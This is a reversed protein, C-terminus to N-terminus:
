VTEKRTRELGSQGSIGASLTSLLVTLKDMVTIWTWELHLASQQSIQWVSLFHLVKAIVHLLAADSNPQHDSLNADVNNHFYDDVEM